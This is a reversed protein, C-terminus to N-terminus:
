LIGRGRSIARDGVKVGSAKQAYRVLRAEAHVRTPGANDDQLDRFWEGVTRWAAKRLGGGVSIIWLAKAPLARMHRM